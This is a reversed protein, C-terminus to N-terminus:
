QIMCQKMSEEVMQLVLARQRDTMKPPDPVLISRGTLSHFLEVYEHGLAVTERGLRALLDALEEEDEAWLVNFDYHAFWRGDCEIM